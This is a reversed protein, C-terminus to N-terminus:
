KFGNIFQRLTARAVFCSHAHLMDFFLVNTKDILMSVEGNVNRPTFLM